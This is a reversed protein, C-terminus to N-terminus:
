GAYPLDSFCDWEFHGNITPSEELYEIEIRCKRGDELELEAYNKGDTRRFYFQTGAPLTEEVQDPLITVELDIDSVIPSVDQPLEYYDAQPLVAGDEPNTKYTRSGTWTGLLQIRTNLVFESPDHFVEKYWTGGEEDEYRIGAFSTGEVLSNQVIEEGNLDYIHINTYDNEATTEVYLFYREKGPEGLCVLFPSMSFGYCEKLYQKKGNLTVYIELSGYENEETFVCLADKKADGNSLDVETEQQTPLLMAWGNEPALTYEAAFLEPMEDFWITATLVDEQDPIIEYANFYFTIGQYDLTWIFDEMAYEALKATLDGSADLSYKAKIKDALIGPISETDTLVENLTLKEGSEPDLNLALTTNEMQEDCINKEELIRVSLIRDDARQVFCGTTGYGQCFEGRKDAQELVKPYIDDLVTDNREQNAVNEKQLRAELKPFATVSEKGLVMEDWQVYCLATYGNDWNDKSNYDRVKLVQLLTPRDQQGPTEEKEMDIETADEIADETADETSFVMGDRDMIRNTVFHRYLLFGGLVLVIVIVIAVPWRKM